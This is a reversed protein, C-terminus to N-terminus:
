IDCGPRAESAAERQAIRPPEVAWRAAADMWCLLVRRHASMPASTVTRPQAHVRAPWALMHSARHLRRRAGARGAGRVRPVRARRRATPRRDRPRPTRRGAPRVTPRGAAPHGCPAVLPRPRCASLEAARSHWPVLTLPPPPAVPIAGHGGLMDALPDVVELAEWGCGGVCVRVRHNEKQM